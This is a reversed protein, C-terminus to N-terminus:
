KNIRTNTSGGIKEMIDKDFYLHFTFEINKINNAKSKRALCIIRTSVTGYKQQTGTAVPHESARSANARVKMIVDDFSSLLSM